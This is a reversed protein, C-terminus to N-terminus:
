KLNENKEKSNNNLLFAILVHRTFLPLNVYSYNDPYKDSFIIKSNFFLNGFQYSLLDINEFEKPILGKKVDEDLKTAALLVWAFVPKSLLLKELGSADLTIGKIKSIESSLKQISLKREALRNIISRRSTFGGIKAKIVAEKVAKRTCNAILKGLKSAPGGYVINEGQGTKAVVLADTVTGTAEFGSYRSRLDLDRLAATKAETTTIIASALCSATPNGDIIVIINITGSIEQVEIEEGSSEAHTCGATAIVSVGLDGEKKSVLSFDNISAYTVMGVFDDFNSIKKSCEIIYDVPDDHLKKDGYDDFVQTNIILKRNRCGGNYIASSMVSLENSSLIALVNSKIVLKIDSGVISYQKM